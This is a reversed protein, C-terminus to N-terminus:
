IPLHRTGAGYTIALFRGPERVLGRHPVGAPVVFTSGPELEVQEEGIDRQLILTMRGELMVLVEDGAPHMEWHPWDEVNPYVGILTDLLAGNNEITTWFQEDVPHTAVRGRGDLSLYTRELEYEVTVGM